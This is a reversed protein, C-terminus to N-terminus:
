ITLIRQNYATEYFIQYPYTNQSKGSKIDIHCLTILCIHFICAVIAIRLIRIHSIRRHSRHRSLRHSVRRHTHLLSLRHSICRHSCCQSLRHPVRRHTHRGSRYFCIKLKRLLLALSFENQLLATPYAVVALSRIIRIHACTRTTHSTILRLLPLICILLSSDGLHILTYGFAPLLSRIFKCISITLRSIIYTFLNSRRTHQLSRSKLFLSLSPFTQRAM